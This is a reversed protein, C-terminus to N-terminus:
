RCRVTAARPARPHASRSRRFRNRSRGSVTPSRRGRWSARPRRRRADPAPTAQGQREAAARELVGGFGGGELATMSDLDALALRWLMMSAHRSIFALPRLRPVDPLMLRRSFFPMSIVGVLM